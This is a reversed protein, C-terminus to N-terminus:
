FDKKEKIDKKTKIEKIKNSIHEHKKKVLEYFSFLTIFGAAIGSILLTNDKMKQLFPKKQASDLRYKQDEYENLGLTLSINTKKVDDSILSSQADMLYKKLDELDVGNVDYSKQKNIFDEELKKYNEKLAKIQEAMDNLAKEDEKEKESNDVAKPELVTIKDHFVKDNIKITLLISGSEEINGSVLSIDTENEKLSDIPTTDYTSFGRAVIIPILNELLVNGTNKVEISLIVDGKEAEKPTVNVVEFNEIAIIPEIEPLITINEEPATENSLSINDLSVNEDAFIISSLCTILMLFIFVNNQKKM